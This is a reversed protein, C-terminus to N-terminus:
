PSGPVIGPPFGQGPALRLAEEIAEGVSLGRRRARALAAGVQLGAGHLRLVPTPGLAALTEAMRAVGVERDPWVSLGAERCAGRDVKSSGSFQIVVAGPSEAALTHPPHTGGEMVREVPHPYDALVLADLASLDGEPIVQAGEKELATALTSRFPNDGLVAIRSGRVSVQAGWLQKLVLSGVWPFVGARHEDTGLVPILHEEFAQLDVEGARFEWTEFMLSVASHPKMRQALDRDLPRLAGLNTLVDVEGMWQSRAEDRHVVRVRDAVGFTRAAALTQAAAEEWTGYPSDGAAAIVKRAGALAALPATLAFWSTAAETMVVLDDLDLGLSALTHFALRLCRAHSSLLSPSVPVAQAESM